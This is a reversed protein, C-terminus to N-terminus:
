PTGELPTAPSPAPAPDIADGGRDEARVPRRATVALAVVLVGPVLFFWPFLSFSPLADVAAYTDLNDNMAGIMPAMDSSIRPFEEELRHLDPYREALEAPSAEPDSAPIAQTRAAGEGAGITIFYGQVRRARAETMLPRFDDIMEAGAPARTFMQFGVPAAVLGLGLVVLAVTPGGTSRGRRVRVLGWASASAILVGPVVFFWPFAAFPPLAVVGQFAPLDDEMTALMGTMDDDVGPWGEQLAVYTPMQEARQGASIGQQQLAPDLTVESEEVAAGILAMDDQFGGITQEDMFPTFDAMMEGGQPARDFMQFAAPAAALGLGIVLTVM